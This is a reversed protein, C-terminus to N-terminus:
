HAAAHRRDEVELQVDTGAIRLSGDRGVEVARGDALRYEAQGTSEWREGPVSVDRALRDYACVKYSAGDSGRATFSDLLHLQLDM